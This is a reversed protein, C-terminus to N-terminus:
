IRYLQSWWKLIMRVVLKCCKKDADRITIFLMPLLAVGCAEEMNRKTKQSKFFIQLSALIPFTQM